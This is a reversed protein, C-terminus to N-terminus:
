FAYFAFQGDFGHLEHRGVDRVELLEALRGQARESLLRRQGLAGRGEEMRFVFHVEAGSIREEEGVSVGGFTVTGVHVVLRFPPSEKAQMVQLAQM